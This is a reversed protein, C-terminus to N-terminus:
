FLRDLVDRHIEVPFRRRLARTYEAVLDSGMAATLERSLGATATPPPDEPTEVKTLQAVYSGTADAATVVEGPKAAFLKAIIAAPTKEDPSPRRSLPPSVAAKLGKEAAVAALDHDGKVATALEEAKKAVAARRKEAQWAAVAQDRVEALPKVGPPIVKSVRAAFIGGDPGETIRSTQGESTAFVLKLVADGSIPLSVPKGEPDTGGLDAAAVVTTKLGFKVAADELGAGGALVDDIRNALKYIRDEAEERSLEAELKPKVQEFSQNIPPEIKVVRLIHWGLPSKVPESPKNLPLDFAIDSLLKPMEERRMLGLEITEPDQDAIATAVEKWDKGTALAAEAEKAKEESPALIQQVERQEPVQFEEQRQDFEEKLKAEPIEIGEIDSPILSVLTFGRYEPIHFLDQHGDYFATLESESPQGVDGAEATPLAVIEAVRKENRYRYLLDVLTPPATAGATLAQLLDTRPIDRRMMAVFQDETLRNQALVANFLARDFRGDPTRFRPNDTVASRIVQDSVELRLRAAEQDLLSRNILDDLVEDVIGLKKAQQPDITSGFRANLRELTPRLAAQLEEARISHDGVTAVAQDTARKTFIDGIGWVGFTLILLGFLVKVLFSGARSRIAQLM